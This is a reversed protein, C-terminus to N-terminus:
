MDAATRSIISECIEKFITAIQKKKEETNNRDEKSMKTIQNPDIDFVPKNEHQSQAILSNFEPILSQVLQNQANHMNAGQLKPTLENKIRKQIKEIWEQFSRSPIIKKQEEQTQAKGATLRFNQIIYGMFQPQNPLKYGNLDDANRFDQFDQYANPLVREIAKLAQWSFFDPALPLLFYDSNMLLCQNLMGISPSMDMLIFDYHYENALLTFLKRFIGPMKMTTATRAYRNSAFLLSTTLRPEVEAFQINGSLLDIKGTNQATNKKRYNFLKLNKIDRKSLTNSGEMDKIVANYIDSYNKYFAEINEQKQTYHEENKHTSFGALLGTLNCQSDSDVLLIDKGLKSLMAGVHFTTTTKSVGGKHNFFSIIKGM